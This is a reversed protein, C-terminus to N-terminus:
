HLQKTATPPWRHHRTAPASERRPPPRVQAIVGPSSAPNTMIPNEEAEGSFGCAVGFKARSGKAVEGKVHELAKAV